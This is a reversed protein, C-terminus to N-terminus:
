STHGRETVTPAKGGGAILDDRWVAGTVTGATYHLRRLAVRSPSGLAEPHARRYHETLVESLSGPRYAVARSLDRLPHGAAPHRDGPFPPFIVQENAEM